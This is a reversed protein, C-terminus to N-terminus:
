PLRVFRVGPIDELANLNNIPVIVQVLDPICLEVIGLASTAEAVAESQGPECDIIVKVSGDVLEIGRPQAFEEAEGQEEARILQNLTGSLKPGRLAPPEIPPIDEGNQNTLSPEAVRVTLPDSPDKSYWLAWYAWEASDETVLVYVDFADFRGLGGHKDPDLYSTCDIKWHGVKVSKIVARIVEVEDGEPVDGLWSLEGSVLEFGDPLTIDVSMDRLNGYTHNNVICVLEATQNLPPAGNPFSIDVDIPDAPETKGNDTEQPATCGSILLVIISLNLLLVSIKKCYIKWGKGTNRM